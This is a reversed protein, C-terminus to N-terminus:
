METAATWYFDPLPLEAALANRAEYEPMFHWYVGRVYERWGIVQRIFGEAAELPANGKRWAREAGAVVDRPDLLKMNMAQSLRSHYLWPEGTWIADQYRGFSPLRHALFDDLALRAAAPTVPWDFRALDGPHSAFRRNVLEIVGRTVDDPPFSRPAPLRGPGSKPFAGRNDADFNWQGGAPEGDDMLIAFRERLPRYFYELRLQKRGAAHTAFDATTTFFHRDTRIELPIGAERATAVLMERVRHEGPEVVILREPRGPPTDAASGGRARPPRKAAPPALSATLAAALSGPEDATPAAALERYDVAIGATRLDDRFHRMAALFTVIRPKGTWVHTSEDAVEAMWVADHAPDFGDFAASRGDLQDGLVIVLHRPM